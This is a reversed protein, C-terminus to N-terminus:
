GGTGRGELFPTDTDPPQAPQPLRSQAVAAISMLIADTNTMIQRNSFRLVHLGHTQLYDTREADYEAQAAHIDGDVEVVLQAAHCYFDVIFDGIVQQRRFRLGLLKGGRLAAWLHAEAPTMALRMGRALGDMVAEQKRSVIVSEDM